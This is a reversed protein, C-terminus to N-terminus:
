CASPPASRARISQSIISQVVIPFLSWKGARYPLEARVTDPDIGNLRESGGGAIMLLLSTEESRLGADHDLGLLDALDRLRRAQEAVAQELNQQMRTRVRPDTLQGRFAFRAQATQDDTTPRERNVLEGITLALEDPDDLSILSEFAADDFDAFYDVFERRSLHALLDARFKAQSGWLNYLHRRSVGAARAVRDITIHGLVDGRATQSGDGRGAEAVLEAIIQAGARLARDQAPTRPSARWEERAVPEPEGDFTSTRDPPPGPETLEAMVCRVAFALASWPGAGDEVSPAWARMLDPATWSLMASGDVLMAIALTLDDVTLSPVPRRRAAVLAQEVSRAARARDRRELQMRRAATDEPLPYALSASRLVLRHDAAFQQQVSGFWRRTAEFLDPASPDVEDALGVVAGVIWPEDADRTILHTALDVWFEHQTPWLKYMAARSVGLRDAVDGVKVPSVLHAFAPEGAPDLGVVSAAVDLYQARSDLEGM